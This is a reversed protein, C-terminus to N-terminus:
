QLMMNILHNANKISYARWYNGMDKMQVIVGVEENTYANIINVSVECEDDLYIVYAIRIFEHQKSIDINYEKLLSENVLVTDIVNTSGLHENISNVIYNDIMPLMVGVIGDALQTEFNGDPSKIKQHLEKSVSSVVGKIDVFKNFNGADKNEYAIKVRYLSYYPSTYCWYLGYVFLSM